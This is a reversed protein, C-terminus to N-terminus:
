GHREVISAGIAVDETAASDFISGHLSFLAGTENIAATHWECPREIPRGKGLDRFSQIGGNIRLRCMDRVPRHERAHDADLAAVVGAIPDNRGTAGFQRHDLREHCLKFCLSTSAEALAIEAPHRPHIDVNDRVLPSCNRRIGSMTYPIASITPAFEVRSNIPSKAPLQYCICSPFEAYFSRMPLSAGTAINGLPKPACSPLPAWTSQIMSSAHSPMKFHSNTWTIPM